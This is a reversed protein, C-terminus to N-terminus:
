TVSEKLGPVSALKFLSPQLWLAHVHVQHSLTSPTSQKPLKRHNHVACGIIRLGILQLTCTITVALYPSVWMSVQWVCLSPTSLCAEHLASTNILITLDRCAQALYSVISRVLRTVLRTLLQSKRVLWKSLATYSCLLRTSM